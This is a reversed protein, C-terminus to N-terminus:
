LCLQRFRQRLRRVYESDGLQGVFVPNLGTRAVVDQYFSIPLLPYHAIGDLIEATRINILLDKDTLVRSPPAGKPFIGKYSGPPMLFEMRQLHDGMLIRISDSRNAITSLEKVHPRFPDWRWLDVNDFFIQGHTDDSIEIEWEPLSVNVITCDKIRAALTLAGMYQLMKNALNGRHLVQVVRRSEFNSRM